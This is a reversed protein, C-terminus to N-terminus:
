SHIADMAEEYIWQQGRPSQLFSEVSRMADANTAKKGIAFDNSRSISNIKVQEVQIDVKIVLRISFDADSALTEGTAPISVDGSLRPSVFSLRKGADATKQHIVVRPMKL